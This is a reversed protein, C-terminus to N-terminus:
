LMLLRAAKWGLGWIIRHQVRHFGRHQQPVRSRQRDLRFCRGAPTPASTVRACIGSSVEGAAQGSVECM